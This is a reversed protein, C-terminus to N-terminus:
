AAARQDIPYSTHDRIWSRAVDLLESAAVDPEDMTKYPAMAVIRGPGNRFGDGGYSQDLFALWDEGHLAAIDARPYAALAARRLILAITVPDGDAETLEAAATRRYATVRRWTLWRRVMLLLSLGVALGLWLWGATQPWLLIPPPEPAPELIEILEILNLESLKKSM